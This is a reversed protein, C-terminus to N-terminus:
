KSADTVTSMPFRSTALRPLHHAHQQKHRPPHDLITDSAPPWRTVTAGPHASTAPPPLAGAAAIGLPCLEWEKRGEAGLTPGVAGVRGM